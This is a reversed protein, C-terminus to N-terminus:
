GADTFQAPSRLECACFATPSRGIGGLYAEIADFGEALPVPRTFRAHEIRFGPEAAVGGSYQFQHAIFRYGGAQVTSMARGRKSPPISGLMACCRTKTM